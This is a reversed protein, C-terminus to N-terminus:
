KFKIILTFEKRNSHGYICAARKGDHVVEVVENDITASRVKMADPGEFVIEGALDRDGCLTIEIFGDNEAVGLIDSTCHLIKLGRSIAM